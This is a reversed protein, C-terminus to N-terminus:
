LLILNCVNCPNLYIGMQGTVPTLVHKLYAHVAIFAFQEMLLCQITQHQQCQRPIPDTQSQFPNFLTAVLNTM